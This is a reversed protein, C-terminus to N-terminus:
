GHTRDGAHRQRRQNWKDVLKEAEGLQGIPALAQVIDQRDVDPVDTTEGRAFPLLVHPAPRSNPLM